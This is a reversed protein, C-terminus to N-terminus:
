LVNVLMIVNHVVVWGMVLNISAYVVRVATVRRIRLFESHFLKVVHNRPKAGVFVRYLLYFVFASGLIKALLPPFWGINFLYRGFPNAERIPADPISLVFLTLAYDLFGLVCFIAFQTRFM